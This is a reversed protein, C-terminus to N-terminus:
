SMKTSRLASLLMWPALSRNTEGIWMEKTFKATRGVACLFIELLDPCELLEIQISLVYNLIPCTNIRLTKNSKGKIDSGLNNVEGGFCKHIYQKNTKTTPGILVAAM